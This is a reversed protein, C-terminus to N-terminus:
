GRRRLARLLLRPAGQHEGLLAPRRSACAWRSPSRCSSTTSSKLMVPDASTGAAHRSKREVVRELV